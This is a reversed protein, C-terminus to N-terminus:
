IRDSGGPIEEGRGSRLTFPAFEARRTTGAPVTWATSDATRSPGLIIPNERLTAARNDSFIARARLTSHVIVDDSSLNSVDVSGTFGSAKFYLRKWVHSRARAPDQMDLAKWEPYPIGVIDRSVADLKQGHAAILDSRDLVPTQYRQAVKQSGVPSALATVVYPGGRLDLFGPFLEELRFAVSRAGPAPAPRYRLQSAVTQPKTRVQGEGTVSEVEELLFNIEQPVAFWSGPFYLTFVGGLNVVASPLFPPEYPSQAAVFNGRVDFNRMLVRISPHTAIRTLTFEIPAGDQQYSCRRIGGADDEEPVFKGGPISGSLSQGDPSQRGQFPVREVFCHRALTFDEPRLALRFTVQQAQFAIQDIVLEGPHFGAARDADSVQVLRGELKGSVQQIDILNGRATSWVGTISSQASCVFTTVYLLALKVIM